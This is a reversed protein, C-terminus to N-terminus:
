SATSVFACVLRSALAPKQLSESVGGKHKAAVSLPSIIFTKM